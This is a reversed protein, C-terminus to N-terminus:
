DTAQTALQLTQTRGRADLWTATLVIDLPDANEGSPYTPVIAEDRLHLDLFAPVPAGAAFDGPIRGTARAIMLEMCTELDTMATSTDRSSDILGFSAIQSGFSAATAVLLVSM